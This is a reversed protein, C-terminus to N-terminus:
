SNPFVGNRGGTNNRDGTTIELCTTLLARPVDVGMNQTHGLQLWAWINLSASIISLNLVLLIYYVILFAEIVM